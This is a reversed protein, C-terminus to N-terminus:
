FRVRGGATRFNLNDVGTSVTKAINKPMRLYCGEEEDYFVGHLSFPLEKADLWILDPEDITTEIKMNKDIEEIRM